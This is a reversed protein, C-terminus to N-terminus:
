PINSLKAEQLDEHLRRPADSPGTPRRLGGQVRGTCDHTGRNPRRAPRKPAEPPSRPPRHARRPADSARCPWFALSM